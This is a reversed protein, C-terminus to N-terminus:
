GDYAKKALGSRVPLPYRDVGAGLIPNAIYHPQAAQYLAPDLINKGERINVFRAFAKCETNLLPRDLWFWLHVSVTHPNLWGASSSLQYHYSTSKLEPLHKAIIADCVAVPDLEHLPADFGLDYLSLKDVDLMVWPLATEELCVTHLAQPYKKEDKRRWIPQSIDVHDRIKGRVALAYPNDAFRTLLASLEEINKPTHISANFRAARGYNLTDCEGKKNIFLTKTAIPRQHSKLTELIILQHTNV